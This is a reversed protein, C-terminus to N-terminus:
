CEGRVRVRVERCLTVAKAGPPLPELRKDAPGSRGDAAPFHDPQHVLALNTADLCGQLAELSRGTWSVGLSNFLEASSVGYKVPM